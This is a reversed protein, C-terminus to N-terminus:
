AKKDLLFKVLSPPGVVSYMLLTWGNQEANADAKMHEFMIQFSGVQGSICADFLANFSGNPSVHGPDAKEDLLIRVIDPSQMSKALAENLVESVEPTNKLEVKARKITDVISDCLTVPM